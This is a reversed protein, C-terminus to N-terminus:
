SKRKTTFSGKGFASDAMEDDSISLGQSNLNIQDKSKQTRNLFDIANEYKITYDKEEVGPKKPNKAIWLKITLDSIDCGKDQLTQLFLGMNSVRTGYHGTTNEIVWGMKEIHIFSGAFSVVKGGSLSSHSIGVLGEKKESGRTSTEKKEEKTEKKEEKTEKKEEEPIVTTVIAGPISRVKPHTYIHPAGYKDDAIMVVCNQHGEKKLDIGGQTSVDGIHGFDTTKADLEFALLNKPSFYKIVKVKAEEIADLLQSLTATSITLKKENELYFALKKYDLEYLALINGDLDRINLLRASLSEPLYHAKLGISHLKQQSFFRRM